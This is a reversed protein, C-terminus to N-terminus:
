AMSRRLLSSEATILPACPEAIKAFGDVGVAAGAGFRWLGGLGVAKGHTREDSARRRRGRVRNSRERGAPMRFGVRLRGM